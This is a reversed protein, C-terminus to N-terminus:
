HRPAKPRDPLNGPLLEPFTRKIHELVDFAMNLAAVPNMEVTAQVRFQPDIPVIVVHDGHQSVLTGIAQFHRQVGTGTGKARADFYLSELEIQRKPDITM